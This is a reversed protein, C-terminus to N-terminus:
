TNVKPARTKRFEKPTELSISAQIKQLNELVSVDFNDNEYLLNNEVFPDSVSM